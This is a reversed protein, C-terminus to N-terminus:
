HWPHDSLGIKWGAASYEVVLNGPLFVHFIEDDNQTCLFEIRVNSDFSVRVDFQNFMDIRLLKGFDIEEVLRDFDENSRCDNAGLLIVDDKVIRWSNCFTGIEVELHKVDNSSFNNIGFALGLLLTRCGYEEQVHRVACPMGIISDLKGRVIASLSDKSM